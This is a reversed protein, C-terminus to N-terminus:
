LDVHVVMGSALVPLVWRAQRLTMGAGELEQRMQAFTLAHPNSPRGGKITSRIARRVRLWRSTMGFFLIAWERGVRKVERLMEQRTPAPIRQYLRMCTVGRFQHDHYPLHQADGVDMFMLGARGGLRKQAFALMETSYDMAGVKYGHDLLIKTYRGTGCAIDLVEGTRPALQLLRLFAATERWGVVKARFNSLRAPDEYQADYEGAHAEDRYFDKAEYESTM